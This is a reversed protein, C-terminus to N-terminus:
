GPLRLRAVAGVALTGGRQVRCSVGGRWDDALAARLGPAAEDMRECPELEGTVLLEIEDGLHLVAGATFRLDLGDVLLNARRSLWPQDTNALNCAEIWASASLVTVQRSGPKGRTDGAVGAATSIVAHELLLMPGRTVNRRAIGLVRGESAGAMM